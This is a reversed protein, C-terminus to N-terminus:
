RQAAAGDALKIPAGTMIFDVAQGDHTTRFAVPVGSRDLWVAQHKTGVIDFRRLTMEKGDFTVPAFPGGAVSVKEVRGNDTSLMVDTDLVKASWPNSPHVDAPATVVSGDPRTVVFGNRTAEGHVHIATGNTTTSSEFRVLRNGQWEELRTGDERHVVIGLLKVAIHLESRIQAHEGDTEIINQYTGIDGYQAHEVHYRYVTEAARVPLAALAAAAALGTLAIIRELPM